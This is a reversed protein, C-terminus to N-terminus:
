RSVTTIQSRWLPRGIWLAITQCSRRVASWQSASRRSPCSGSMARLVPSSMSGYKEAELIAQSSSRMSPARGAASALLRAKPVMSVKRSQRSVPPLDCRVSAVLAARVSSNSIPFPGPVGVEATKELHGGRQKRLHAVARADKAFRFWAQEAARNWMRPM